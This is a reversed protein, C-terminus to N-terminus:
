LFKSWFSKKQLKENIEFSLKVVQQTLEAIANNMENQLRSQEQILSYIKSDSMNNNLILDEVFKGIPKKAIKALKKAEDKAQNSVGLIAWVQKEKYLM